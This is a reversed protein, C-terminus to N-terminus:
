AMYIDTDTKLRNGYMQNDEGGKLQKYIHSSIITPVKKLGALTQTEHDAKQSEVNEFVSFKM